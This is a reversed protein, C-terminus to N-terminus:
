DALPEEEYIKYYLILHPPPSNAAIEVCVQTESEKCSLLFDALWSTREDKPAHSHVIEDLSVWDAM